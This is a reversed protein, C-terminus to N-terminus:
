QNHAKTKFRKAKSRKKWKHHNMKTKRKKMVSSFERLFPNEFVPIFSTLSGFLTSIALPAHSWPMATPRAVVTTCITRNLLPRALQPSFLSWCRGFLSM